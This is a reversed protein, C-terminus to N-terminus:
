IREWDVSAIITQMYSIACLSLISFLVVVVVVFVIIILELLAVCGIQTSYLINAAQHSGCMDFLSVAHIMLMNFWM